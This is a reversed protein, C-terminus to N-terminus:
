FTRAALIRVTCTPFGAWTEVKMELVRFSLTLPDNEAPRGGGDGHLRFDNPTGSEVPASSRRRQFCEPTHRCASEDHPFSSEITSRAQICLSDAVLPM